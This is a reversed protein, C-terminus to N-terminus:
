GKGRRSLKNLPAYTQSVVSLSFSQQLIPSKLLFLDARSYSNLNRHAAYGKSNACPHSTTLLHLILWRKTKLSVLRKYYHVQYIKTEEEHWSGSQDPLGRWVLHSNSSSSGQPTMDAWVFTHIGWAGEHRSVASFTCLANDPFGM